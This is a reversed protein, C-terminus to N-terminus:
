RGTQSAAGAPAGGVVDGVGGAVTALDGQGGTWSAFLDAYRGGRDVLEHHTGEEILGGEDVVAVRDARAATSLRHAIVIVTRGEMLATVAREVEVETGPDLNSTAEDLVLVAPNALAARALSVLQREGASLRSGRERVETSLGEPLGEFHELVGITDMARRVEEDSAGDRGIRVNEFITGHFLFGEQPVVVIRERLSRFTADRLDTGGMSISGETPDYLRAVLKALTSKGAGTPGVLALREGPAITLSVDSLVKPGDGYAFGVSGVEIAGRVPLDVAGPREQVASRTDLLGFLKALAAGSSQVLNFLQSLQQIPDFLYSLYLVFAAVTGLTTRHEHVLVGGLGVVAATTVVTSTEVVPFYRASIGIANVNAHLQADNHESFRSAQLRQRGFAKIVRIGAIGEQLTSMTQSIRDRVTLYATNSERRFWRTAIVLPPLAVLCVLFLLPSYVILVVVTIVFLLGNTVFQVLGMQILDQLADIDSTMRAVLRGTQERDFFAMSMSQIHRFVRVRLDRLFQEGVRSVLVIQARGLVLAAIAVGLYALAVRNLTGPSRHKGLGHDIGYGILRPGALTALTFLVMVSLATVVLARYPRLMRFSRRVVKGAEERSLRDEEDLAVDRWWGM